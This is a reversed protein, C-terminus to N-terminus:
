GHVTFNNLRRKAYKMLNGMCFISLLAQIVKVDVGLSCVYSSGAALASLGSYPLAELTRLVRRACHICNWALWPGHHWEPAAWYIKYPFDRSSIFCV